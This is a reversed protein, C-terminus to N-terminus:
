ATKEAMALGALRSVVEPEVGYCGIQRGHEISDFYRGHYDTGGTPILELRACLGLLYDRAALDHKPTNVELGLLGTEQLKRVEDEGALLPHAWVPVGGASLILGIAGAADVFPRTRAFERFYNVMFDPSGFFEVAEASDFAVGSLDGRRYMVDLLHSMNPIGEGTRRALEEDAVALGRERRFRDLLGAMFARSRERLGSLYGALRPARCDIFYGLIHHRELTTLEVGPVVRLGTGSAHRIGREVSATTDHDTIAIAQMRNGAARDVLEEVPYGGDSADTHLHLDCTYNPKEAM